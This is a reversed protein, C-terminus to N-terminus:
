LWRHLLQAGLQCPCSPGERMDGVGLLRLIEKRSTMEALERLPVRLPGLLLCREGIFPLVSIHM